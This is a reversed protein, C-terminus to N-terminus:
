RWPYLCDPAYRERTLEALAALDAAFERDTQTEKRELTEVVRFTFAQPGYSAWDKQLVTLLCSGTSQAFAFRNGAKEVDSDQRVLARGNATCRIEYVCGVIKRQKYATILEKKRSQEM